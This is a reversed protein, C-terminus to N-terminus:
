LVKFHLVWQIKTFMRSFFSPSSPFPHHHGGSHGGPSQGLSADSQERIMMWTSSPSTEHVSRETLLIVGSRRSSQRSKTSYFISSMFVSVVNSMSKSSDKLWSQVCFCQCSFSCCTLSWKSMYRRKRPNRRRWRQCKKEWLQRRKRNNTHLRRSRSDTEWTLSKERGERSESCMDLM